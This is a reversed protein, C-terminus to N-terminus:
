SISSRFLRIGSPYRGADSPVAYRRCSINCNWGSDYWCGGRLARVNGTSPDFCWENVNGSMDYLGYGNSKKKGVGQTGEECNKRNWGVENLDDSGSYSYNEGGKAAYEWEAETPLRYGNASTNVKVKQALDDSQSSGLTLGEPLQYVKELGNRESLMNAFIVCDFWSVREVPLDDGKCHSPNMGTIKM